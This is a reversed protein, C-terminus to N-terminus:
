ALDIGLDDSLQQFRVAAQPSIDKIDQYAEAFLQDLDPEEISPKEAAAATPTQPAATQARSSITVQDKPEQPATTRAKLSIGDSTGVSQALADFNLLSNIQSSYQQRLGEFRDIM